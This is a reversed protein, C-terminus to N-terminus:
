AVRWRVAVGPRADDLTSGRFPDPAPCQSCLFRFPVRRGVANPRAWGAGRQGPDPRPPRPSRRFRATPRIERHPARPEPAREVRRGVRPASERLGRRRRGRRGAVHVGCFPQKSNNVQPPWWFSRSCSSWRDERLDGAEARLVGLEPGRVLPQRGDRRRRRRGARLGGEVVQRREHVRRSRGSAVFSPVTRQEDRHEEELALAVDVARQAVQEGEGEGGCVDDDM